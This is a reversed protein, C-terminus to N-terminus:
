TANKILQPTKPGKMGGGVAAQFIMMNKLYTDEFTYKSIKKKSYVYGQDKSSLAKQDGSFKYQLHVERPPPKLSTENKFDMKIKPGFVLAFQFQNQAKKNYFISKGAKISSM